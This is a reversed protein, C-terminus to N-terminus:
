VKARLRAASNIRVKCGTAINKCIWCFPIRGAKLIVLVEVITLKRSVVCSYLAGVQVESAKM